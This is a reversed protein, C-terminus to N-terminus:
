RAAFDYLLDVCFKEVEPLGPVNGGGDLVFFEDPAGVGGGHGLGTAFVVPAGFESRFISWPGGYGQFPWIIAKGGYKEVAQLFSQVLPANISTRSWSYGGKMRVQIDPYGHQELHAGIKGIVEEPSLDTILRTDFVATVKDPITFTKTGPGTYGAYLGQINFTSGYMYQKLVEVGSLDDVYKKVGAHALGPIIEDWSEGEYHALLDAILQEDEPLPKAPATFPEELGKIVPRNGDPTTMTALAQVLRWVPSDVIPKTASHVPGATPGRGWAHASAEVEFTLLGKYGLVLPLEGKLNQTARLYLCGEIEQLRERYRDIFRAYNPSGLIEDGEALFAINVPLTGTTVIIAKLACLWAGYPGKPVSAGRGYLVKPFPDRAAIVGAFPPYTWNSESGVPRVDYMNYNVITKPAGADYYAWIGPYGDVEILEVEQCGLDRYYGAVLEACEHVGVGDVSVSPQRVYEQLLATHEDLHQDIYDYIPKLDM